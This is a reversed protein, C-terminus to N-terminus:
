TDSPPEKHLSDKFPSENIDILPDDIDSLLSTKKSVESIDDIEEEKAKFFSFPRTNNLITSMAEIKSMLVKNQKILLQNQKAIKKTQLFWTLVERTTWCMLIVGLLLVLFLIFTNTKNSLMLAWVYDSFAWITDFPFLFKFFNFGPASQIFWSDKYFFDVFFFYFNIFSSLLLIYM